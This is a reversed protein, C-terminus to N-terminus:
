AVSNQSPKNCPMIVATSLQHVSSAANPDIVGCNIIFSMLFGVARGEGLKECGAKFPPQRRCTSPSQDRGKRFVYSGRSSSSGSPTKIQTDELAKGHLSSQFLSFVSASVLVSGQDPLLESCHVPFFLPSPLWLCLSILIFFKLLITGRKKAACNALPARLSATEVSQYSPAISQLLILHFVVSLM